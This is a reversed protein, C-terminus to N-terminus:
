ASSRQRRCPRHGSRHTAGTKQERYLHLGRPSAQRCGRRRTSTESSSTLFCGGARGSVEFSVVRYFGSFVETQEGLQRVEKGFELAVQQLSSRLNEWWFGPLFPELRAFLWRTVPFRYLWHGEPLAGYEAILFHGCPKLVRIAESLVRRRATSPIEHLLFFVIIIDFSNDRYALREANMCAPLLNSPLRMKSRALKLQIPAVDALHLRNWGGHEILRPTLEGYVCTLQLVHKMRGDKLRRLTESMLRRYQGLLIANIIMQHDFFWVGAKWLYAWWYHRALYEPVGDMFYRYLKV